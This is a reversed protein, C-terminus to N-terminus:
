CTPDRPLTRPDATCGEIETSAPCRSTSCPWTPGTSSWPPSPTTAELGGRAVVELDPELGLLAAIAGRVLAQDDAIVLRIM